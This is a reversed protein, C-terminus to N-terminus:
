RAGPRAAARGAALALSGPSTTARARGSKRAYYPARSAPSSASCASCGRHPGRPRGPVFGRTPRRLPWAWCRWRSSAASSTTAPRRDRAAAAPVSDDLSTCRSRPWPSASCPRTMAELLSRDLFDVVRREYEAPERTSARRHPRRRAEWIQKPEGAAATTTPTAAPRRRGRRRPHPLRPAARDAPGPGRPEPPPSDSGFVVANPLDDCATADLAPGVKSSRGSADDIEERWRLAVGAGESVVAALDHTEAAPRSCCRAASRSGSAASASAPRRRTASSCSRRHRRRIDKDFDWGWRTRTARATPGRRPPRLAARRLRPPRAHAGPQATGSRGPFVIVAARNRRRSTGARSSSATARRRADRGRAAAGLKPQPCTPARSTRASHLRGAIPRAAIVALVVVVGRRGQTARRGYRRACATAGRRRSRGCRRRRRSRPAGTRRGARAARHLRRGVAGAEGRTTAAGRAREAIAPCSSSCPSRPRARGRSGAPIPGPRSVSCRWRSSVASSTTAPPPARAAPQVFRDDLVHLALLGVALRFLATARRAAPGPRPPPAATSGSARRSTTTTVPPAAM